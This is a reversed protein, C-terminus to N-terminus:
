SGKIAKAVDVVSQGGIHALIPSIFALAQEAPVGLFYFLGLLLSGLLASIAKKSDLYKKLGEM